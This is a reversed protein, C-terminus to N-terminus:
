AYALTEWHESTEPAQWKVPEALYLFILGLWLLQYDETEEWKLM